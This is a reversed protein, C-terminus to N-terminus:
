DCSSRCETFKAGTKGVNIRNNIIQEAVEEHKLSSLFPMDSDLYPVSQMLNCMADNNLVESHSPNDERLYKAFPIKEKQLTFQRAKVSVSM